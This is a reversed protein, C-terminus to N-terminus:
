SSPTAYSTIYCSCIYLSQFVNYIDSLTLLYVPCSLSSMQFCKNMNKRSCPNMSRRSQTFASIPESATDTRSVSMGLLSTQIKCPMLFLKSTKTNSYEVIFANNQSDNSFHNCEIDKAPSIPSHSVLGQFLSVQSHSVQVRYITIAHNWSPAFM